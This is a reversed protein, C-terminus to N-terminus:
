GSSDCCEDRPPAFGRRPSTRHRAAAIPHAATGRLRAPSLRSVQLAAGRLHATAVRPPARRPGALPTRHQGACDHRAAGRLRAAGGRATTGRRSCTQCRTRSVRPPAIRTARPRRTGLLHPGSARLHWEATGRLPAAGRRPPTRRWWPPRPRREALTGPGRGPFLAAGGGRPTGRRTRTTRQAADADAHRAAGRGRSTCRPAAACLDATATCLGVALPQRRAAWGSCRWTSTSGARLMGSERPARSSGRRAPGGRGGRRVAGRGGGGGGGGALWAVGRRWAAVGATRGPHRLATASADGAGGRGRPGAAVERAM